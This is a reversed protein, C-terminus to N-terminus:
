NRELLVSKEISREGLTVVVDLEANEADPRPRGEIPLSFHLKDDESVAPEPTGFLWGGEGHVFISAQDEAGQPVKVDVTITSDGEDSRASLVDFDESAPGPLGAFAKEVAVRARVDTGNIDAPAPLAIDFETQFPVCIKECLGLFVKARLDAAGGDRKMEIAFSLPHKYGAWVSYGDDVRIPAPLRLATLEIGSSASLDVQPPIGSAGPDIWYTKWGEDLDIELAGRTIGSADPEPDVVLRMRAGETEVWGSDLALAPIGSVSLFGALLATVASKPHM